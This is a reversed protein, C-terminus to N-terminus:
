ACHQTLTFDSQPANAGPRAQSFTVKYPCASPVPFEIQIQSSEGPQLTGTSLSVQGHAPLVEKLMWILPDRSTSGNTITVSCTTVTMTVCRMSGATTDILHAPRSNSSLTGHLLLIGAGIVTLIVICAVAALLGRKM